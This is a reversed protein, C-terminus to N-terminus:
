VRFNHRQLDVLMADAGLFAALRPELEECASRFMSYPFEAIGSFDSMGREALANPM